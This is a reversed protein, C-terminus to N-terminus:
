CCLQRSIEQSIHLNKTTQEAQSIWGSQRGPRRDSLINQIGGSRRNGQVCCSDSM